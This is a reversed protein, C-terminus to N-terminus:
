RAGEQALWSINAPIGTVAPSTPQTPIISRLCHSVKVMM